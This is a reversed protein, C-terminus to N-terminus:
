LFSIIWFVLASVLAAGPLTLLWALAVKRGTDWRVKSSSKVVGVGTVSGVIMHTSSIPMGLFSAALIVVSASTEAAFGHYPELKTIEYGVTRIIRFGGSATGLGIMLACARVIGQRTLTM